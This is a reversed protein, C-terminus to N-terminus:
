YALWAFRFDVNQWFDNDGTRTSHKPISLSFASSKREIARFDFELSTPPISSPNESRFKSYQFNQRNAILRRSDKGMEKRAAAVIHFKKRNHKLRM